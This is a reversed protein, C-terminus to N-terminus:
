YINLYSHARLIGIKFDRLFKVNVLCWLPLSFFFIFYLPFFLCTLTELSVKMSSDAERERSEVSLVKKMFIKYASGLSVVISPWRHMMAPAKGRISKISFPEIRERNKIRRPLLGRCSPAIRVCPSLYVYVVGWINM